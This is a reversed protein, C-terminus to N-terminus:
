CRKKKKFRYGYIYDEGEDDNRVLEYTSLNPAINRKVMEYFLHKPDYCISSFLIAKYRKTCDKDLDELLLNIIHENKLLKAIDSFCKEVLSKKSDYFDKDDSKNKNSYGKEYEKETDEAISKIKNRDRYDNTGSTQPFGVLDILKVNRANSPIASLDPKKFAYREKLLKEFYGMTCSYQTSEVFPIEKGAIEKSTEGFNNKGMISDYFEPKKEQVFGNDTLKFRFIKEIEQLKDFEDDIKSYSYTYNRKAKDIEINSFIALLCILEYHISAEYSWLDEFSEKDWSDIPYRKWFLSNFKQSLNTIQGIKNTGITQDIRALNEPTIQQENQSSISSEESPNFVPVLFRDYQRKVAKVIIENDTILMFDSDFDAGNLRHMINHNISNVCIIEPSLAFYDLYFPVIRNKVYLLNGMTIHPSRAGCLETHDTFRNSYIENDRLVDLKKGKIDLLENGPTYDKHITAYLFEIGNGFLTANTGRILIKGKKIKEKFSKIQNQKFAQYIKTGSFTDTLSLMKRFTDYQYNLYDPEGNLPSASFKLNIYHRFYMPSSKIKELYEMTPSLLSRSEEFSLGITNLFQYNTQVMKGDMYRTPQDTKVIGFTPNNGGLNKLWTKLECLDGTESFKLYKLSSETIVLRIDKVDRALTFGNLQSIKTINNDSFWRQLKTRFACSKFFRNRLFLMSKNQYRKPITAFVSEDILSQGDWIKNKITITNQAPELDKGTNPISIVEEEFESIQDKIILLAKKPLTFTEEIGSLTLARYAEWSAVETVTTEDIGCCSWRNMESYLDERIFLCKNEKASSASRKYRHYKKGACTFGNKYLSERNKNNLKVNILALTYGLFCKEAIKREKSESKLIFDKKCLEQLKITELSYNLTGKFDNIYSNSLQYNYGCKALDDAKIDLIGYYKEAM